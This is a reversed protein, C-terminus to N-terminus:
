NCGGDVFSQVFLVSILLVSLKSVFHFASAGSFELFDLRGFVLLTEMSALSDSDNDWASLAAPHRSFFVLHPSFRVLHLALPVIGCNTPPITGSTFDKVASSKGGLHCKLVKVFRLCRALRRTSLNWSM